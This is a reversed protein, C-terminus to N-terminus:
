VKGEWVFIRRVKDWFEGGMIFMSIIFALDGLALRAHSPM